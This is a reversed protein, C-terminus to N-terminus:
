DRLGGRGGPGERACCRVRATTGELRNSPVGALTRRPNPTARPVTRHWSSSSPPGSDRGRIKLESASRMWGGDQPGNTTAVGVGSSFAMEAKHM